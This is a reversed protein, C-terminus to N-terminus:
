ISQKVLLAAGCDNLWLPYEFFIPKLDPFVKVSDILAKRVGGQNTTDFSKGHVSTDHLVIIGNDSLLQRYKAIEELVIQYDHCADLFIIEYPVQSLLSSYVSAEYSFGKVVSVFQSLGASEVYTSLKQHYHEQPELTTLSGFRNIRLAEGIVISASGIHGGIELVAHPKLSLVLSFLLNRIGVDSHGPSEPDSNIQKLTNLYAQSFDLPEFHSHVHWGRDPTINEPAHLPLAM